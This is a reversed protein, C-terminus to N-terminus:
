STLCSCLRLHYFYLPAGCKIKATYMLCIVKYAPCGVRKTLSANSNVSATMSLPSTTSMDVEFHESPVTVLDDFSKDLTAPSTPDTSTVGPTSTNEQPKDAM